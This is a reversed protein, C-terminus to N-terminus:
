CVGGALMASWNVAFDSEVGHETLMQVTMEIHKLATGSLGTSTMM